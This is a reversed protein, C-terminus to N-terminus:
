EKEHLGNETKLNKERHFLKAPFYELALIKGELSTSHLKPM